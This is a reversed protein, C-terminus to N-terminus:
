ILKKREIDRNTVVRKHVAKEVDPLQNWQAELENQVSTHQAASCKDDIVDSNVIRTYAIQHFVDNDIAENEFKNREEIPLKHWRKLLEADLEATSPFKERPLPSTRGAPVHRLEHETFMALSILRLYDRYSCVDTGEDSRVNKSRSTEKSSKKKTTM